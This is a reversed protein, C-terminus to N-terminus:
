PLSKGKDNLATIIAKMLDLKSIPKILYKDAKIDDYNMFAEKDGMGIMMLVPTKLM